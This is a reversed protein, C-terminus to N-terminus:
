RLRGPTGAHPRSAPTGSREQRAALVPGLLLAGAVACVAAYVVLNAPRRAAAGRPPPRGPALVLAALFAAFFGAVELVRGM